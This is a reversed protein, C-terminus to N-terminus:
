ANKWKDFLANEFLNTPLFAKPIKRGDGEIDLYLKEENLENLTKGVSGDLSVELGNYVLTGYGYGASENYETKYRRGVHVFFLGNKCKEIVELNREREQKTIINYEKAM